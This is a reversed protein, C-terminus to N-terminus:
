ELRDPPTSSKGTASLHMNAETSGADTDIDTQLSQTMDQMLQDLDALEAIDADRQVAPDPETKSNAERVAMALADLEDFEALSPDIITKGASAPAHKSGSKELEMALADLEDFEALSPNIPTQGTSATSSTHDLNSPKAAQPDRGGVAKGDTPAPAKDVPTKSQASHAEAERLLADLEAQIAIERDTQGTSIGSNILKPQKALASSKDDLSASTAAQIDSPKAKPAPTAPTTPATTQAPKPLSDNTANSTKGPKKDPAKATLAAIRTM